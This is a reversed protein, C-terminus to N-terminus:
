PADSADRLLRKDSLEQLFDRVDAELGGHAFDKEVAAIVETLPRGDLHKVIAAGSDYLLLMGEPFVVQHQRRVRDWRYRAHPVLM